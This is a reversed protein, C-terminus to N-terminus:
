PQGFRNELYTFGRLSKLIDKLSEVQMRELDDRTYVILNGASEDKTKQSLDSEKQYNELLTDLDQACLSSLLLLMIFIIKM